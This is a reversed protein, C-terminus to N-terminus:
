RGRVDHVQQRRGRMRRVDGDRRLDQQRVLPLQHRQMELVDGRHDGLVDRLERGADEAHRHVRRRRLVSNGAVDGNAGLDHAEM